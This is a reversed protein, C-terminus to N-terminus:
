TLILVAIHSTPIIYFTFILVSAHLKNVYQKQVVIQLEMAYASLSFISLVKEQELVCIMNMNCTAEVGTDQMYGMDWIGDFNQIYTGVYKLLVQVLKSHIAQGSEKM